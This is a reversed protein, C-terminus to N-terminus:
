GHHEEFYEKVTAFVLMYCGGGLRSNNGVTLPNSRKKALPLPLTITTLKLYQLVRDSTKSGNLIQRQCCTPVLRRCPVIRSPNYGVWHFM